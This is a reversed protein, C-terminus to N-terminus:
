PLSMMNAHGVHERGRLATIVHRPNPADV